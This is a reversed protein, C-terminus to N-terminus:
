ANYYRKRCIKKLELKKLFNMKKKNQKNKKITEPLTRVIKLFIKHYKNTTLHVYVINDM